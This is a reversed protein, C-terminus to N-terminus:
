FVSFRILTSVTMLRIWRHVKVVQLMHRKFIERNLAVDLCGFLHSM